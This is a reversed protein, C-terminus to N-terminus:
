QSHRFDSEGTAASGKELLETRIEKASKMAATNSTMAAAKLRWGVTTDLGSKVVMTSM